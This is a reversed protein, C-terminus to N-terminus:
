LAAGAKGTLGDITRVVELVGEGVARVHAEDVPEGNGSRAFANAQYALQNVNNAVNALLMRTSALEERLREYRAAADPGGTLVARMLFAQVSVGQADALSRLMADEEATLKLM